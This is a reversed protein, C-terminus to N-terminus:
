AERMEECVRTKMVDCLASKILEPDGDAFVETLYAVIDELSELHEAVAFQKM